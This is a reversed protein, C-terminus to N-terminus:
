LKFKSALRNEEDQDHGWGHLLSESNLQMAGPVHLLNMETSKEENIRVSDCIYSAQRPQPIADEEKEATIQIQRTCYSRKACLLNHLQCEARQSFDLM